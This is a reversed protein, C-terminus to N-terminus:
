NSTLLRVGLYAAVIAFASDGKAVVRMEKGDVKRVKSLEYVASWGSFIMLLTCGVLGIIAWMPQWHARYHHKMYYEGDRNILREYKRM